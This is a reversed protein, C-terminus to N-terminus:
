TTQRVRAETIRIKEKLAEIQIDIQELELILFDPVPKHTSEMKYKELRLDTRRAQLSSLQAQYYEVGFEYVEVKLMRHESLWVPRDVDFGTLVAVASASLITGFLTGLLGIKGWINQGSWHEKMAM